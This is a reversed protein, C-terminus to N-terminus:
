QLMTMPIWEGFLPPIFGPRSISPSTVEVAAVVAVAMAMAMAAAVAVAVAM